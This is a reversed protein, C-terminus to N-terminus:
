NWEKGTFKKIDKKVSEKVAESVTKGLCREVFAVAELMKKTSPYWEFDEGAEKVAFLLGNTNM